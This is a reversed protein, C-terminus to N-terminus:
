VVSNFYMGPFVFIFYFEFLINNKARLYYLFFTAREVSQQRRRTVAGYTLKFFFFFFRMFLILIIFPTKRERHTARASHTGFYLREHTHTGGDADTFRHCCRGCSLEYTCLREPIRM